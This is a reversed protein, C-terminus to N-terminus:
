LYLMKLGHGSGLFLFKTNKFSNKKSMVSTEVSKSSTTKRQVVRFLKKLANKQPFKNLHCVVIGITQIVTLSKFIYIRSHILYLLVFSDSRIKNKEFYTNLINEFCVKKRM